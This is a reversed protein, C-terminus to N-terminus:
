EADSGGENERRSLERRIGEEIRERLADVSTGVMGVDLCDLAWNAAIPATTDVNYPTLFKGWSDITYEALAGTNIFVHLGDGAHRKRREAADCVECDSTLAIGSYHKECKM